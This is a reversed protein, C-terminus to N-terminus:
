GAFFSFVIKFNFRNVLDNLIDKTPSEGSKIYVIGVTILLYRLIHYAFQLLLILHTYLRPIINGTYQVTEYLEAVSFKQEERLYRDTLYVLFHQLENTVDIDLM